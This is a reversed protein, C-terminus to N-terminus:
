VAFRLRLAANAPPLPGDQFAGNEDLWAESPALLRRWIAGCLDRAEIGIWDRGGFDFPLAPHTLCCRRFEYVLLVRTAIADLGEVPGGAQLCDALPQWRRTFRRYKDEIREIDWGRGILDRVARPDPITVTLSLCGEAGGFRHSHSSEPTFYVGPAILGYGDEHLKEMLEGSPRRDGTLIIQSWSGTYSSGQHNYVIAAKRLTERAAWESLEYFSSRGRRHRVLADRDCLRALTTRLVPTSIGLREFIASLTSVAISGGRPEVLEAFAAISLAWIRYNSTRALEPLATGLSAYRAVGGAAEGRQAEARRMTERKAGDRIDAHVM